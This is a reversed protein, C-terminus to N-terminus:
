TSKMRGTGECTPCPNLWKYNYGDYVRGEGGCGLCPLDEETISEAETEMSGTGHCVPCEGDDRPNPNNPHGSYIRGETGCVDCPVILVCM